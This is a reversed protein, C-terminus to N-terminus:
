FREPKKRFFPSGHRCDFGQMSRCNQLRPKAGLVTRGGPRCDNVGQVRPEIIWAVWGHSKEQLVLLIWDGRCDQQPEESCHVANQQVTLRM